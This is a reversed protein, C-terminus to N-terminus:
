KQASTETLKALMTKYQEDYANLVDAGPYENVEGLIHPPMDPTKFPAWAPLDKGNPDGTKAFNVWYSSIMEALLATRRRRRLWGPRVPIRSRAPRASIISCM